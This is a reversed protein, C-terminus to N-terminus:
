RRVIQSVGHFFPNYLFELGRLYVSLLHQTAKKIAKLINRLDSSFLITPAFFSFSIHLCTDLVADHIVAKFIPKAHAKRLPHHIEYPMINLCAEILPFQGKFQFSPLIYVDFSM